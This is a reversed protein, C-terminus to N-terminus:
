LRCVVVVVSAVTYCYRSRVLYPRSFVFVLFDPPVMVAINHRGSTVCCHSHLRAELEEVSFLRTTGVSLVHVHVRSHSMITCTPPVTQWVTIQCVEFQYAYQIKTVVKCNWCKKVQQAVKLSNWGTPRLGQSLQHELSSEVSRTRLQDM